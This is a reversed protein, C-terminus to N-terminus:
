PFRFSSVRQQGNGAWHRRYVGWWGIGRIARWTEDRYRWIVYVLAAGGMFLTRWVLIQWDSATDVWRYLLGRRHEVVAWSDDGPASRSRLGAQPRVAAESNM